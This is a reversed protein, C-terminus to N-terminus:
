RSPTPFIFCAKTGSFTTLVEAYPAVLAGPVGKDARLRGSVMQGIEITSGTKYADFIFNVCEAFKERPM